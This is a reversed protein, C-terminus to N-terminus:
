DRPFEHGGRSGFGVWQLDGNFARLTNVRDVDVEYNYPTDPLRGRVESAPSLRGKSQWAACSVRKGWGAYM